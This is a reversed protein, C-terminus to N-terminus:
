LRRIGRRIPRLSVPPAIIEAWVVGQAVGCLEWRRDAVPLEAVIKPMGVDDSNMRWTPDGEDGPTGEGDIVPLPPPRMGHSLEGPMGAADQGNTPVPSPFEPYQYPKKQKFRKMIEPVVYMVIMIVIFLGIDM